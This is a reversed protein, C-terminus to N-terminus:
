VRSRAFRAKVRDAADQLLSYTVPTILLTILLSLGQGGIIVKAMASRSAAGPGRAIAIPLMGAILTLTTMLIPRLRQRNALLIAQVREMGGRELQLSRDIQLIGNKKIIGALLFLGFISYVNLTDGLVLLSILAFPMSLPLSMLIPIPLVLSEFQAALIMYVFVLSLGFALAFNTYADTFYKSRGTFSGDVSAPPDMASFTTRLTTLATGLDIGDLNGYVTVQREQNVRDIEVPGWGDELSAVAALSVTTTRIGSGLAPNAPANSGSAQAQLAASGSSTSPVQLTFFRTPDDRFPKQLRLWVNMVRDAERYRSVISGGVMTNLTTGIDVTRVGLDAARLRDVHVLTEPRRVAASSDVDALGEIKRARDLYARAFAGLEDPDTGRLTISADGNFGSSVGLNGLTQIASRLHPYGKMMTRAMHMIDFQSVDRKESDVLQVIIGGLTPDGQDGITTFVGRVMPLELLREELEGFIRATGQVSTGEQAQAVVQFESRDDNPIFDKGSVIYLPVTSLALLLSFGTIWWRHRLALALTRSYFDAVRGYIPGDAHRGTETHREGRLILATFPPTLTLAVLLSVLVAGTLTIGYSFFFRGVRGQMFAVPLFIVVLSFTTASIALSVERTGEVAAAFAPKGLQHAHRLINELVVIADDIVIGVAVTLALLTVNNLTFGFLQMLAFTTVLSAPISVAAVVTTRWSRLFLLVTAATFAAGLLLHEEVDRVSRRIFDSQDRVTDVAAGPPLIQRLRVLANQVADVVAVTNAGTQKRVALTAAAVGNYRAGTTADEAGDTVVGIDRLLIPRGGRVGVLLRPFDGPAEIRGLTRLYREREGQDVRGGPLEVNEADIARAVDSITLARAALKDPDVEALIARTEGGVIDIEGVGPLTELNNRLIRDAFDTLERLPREGSLALNIVPFDEVNFRSIVPPDTGVPLQDLSQNVKDHVDQAATAADRELVFTCTIQSLGETSKSRLEDMGEITNLAEELPETIGAEIEEPGAGRLTTSVTVVPLDVDPLLDVGLRTYSLVGLTVLFCALMLAMVPRRVFVEVFSM